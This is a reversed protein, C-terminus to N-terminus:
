PNVRHAHRGHADATWGRDRVPGHQLYLVWGYTKSAPSITTIVYDVADLGRGVRALVAHAMREPAAADIQAFTTGYDSSADSSGAKKIHGSDQDFTWTQLLGKGPDEVNVIADDRHFVLNQILAEPPSGRRVAEITARVSAAKIQGLGSSRAARAAAKAQFHHHLPAIVAAAGALALVTFVSLM